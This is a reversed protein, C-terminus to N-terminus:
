IWSLIELYLKPELNELLWFHGKKERKDGHFYTLEYFSFYVFRCNRWSAGGFTMLFSFADVANRDICLGYLVL